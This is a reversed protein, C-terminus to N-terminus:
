ARNMVNCKYEDVNCIGDLLQITEISLAENFLARFFSLFFFRKM